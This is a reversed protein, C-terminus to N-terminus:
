EKTATHFDSAVTTFGLLSVPRPHSCLCPWFDWALTGLVLFLQRSSGRRCGVWPRPPLQAAWEHGDGRKGFPTWQSGGPRSERGGTSTDGMTRSCVGDLKTWKGCLGECAGTGVKWDTNEVRRGTSVLFLSMSIVGFRQHSAWFSTIRGGWLIMLRVEPAAGM